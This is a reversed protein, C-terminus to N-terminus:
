SIKRSNKRIKASALKEIAAADAGSGPTLRANRVASDVFGKGVPTRIVLTTMGAPSGVSGASIDAM